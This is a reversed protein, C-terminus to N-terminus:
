SLGDFLDLKEHNYSELEDDVGYNENILMMNCCMMMSMMVLDGIVCDLEFGEFM